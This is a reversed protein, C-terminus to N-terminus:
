PRVWVGMRRAPRFGHGEYFEAAPADRATLLYWSAVTVREELGRLLASGVGRGQQDARVCMERLLAVDHGAQREVAAIAMGVTSTEEVAALGVAGPAALLSALRARADVVSWPEDWPPASFVGVYLDVVEDLLNATIPRVDM